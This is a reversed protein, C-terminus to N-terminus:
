KYGLAFAWLVQGVMGAIFQRNGVSYTMPTARWSDNTRFRYLTKGTKADVAAFDGSVEGHFLLGGGTTLVGSYNTEQPGFMPKEWVIAGTEINLARVLRTGPDSPDPNNGFIRGKSRYIGCDEAAMVYFLKTQPNFAAPYWNTAGRVGPCTKTGTETPINGPVLHATGTKPDFGDAWTMKKVFPKALLFEGTTRDLVYFVGSRQASMLLKRPKGKWVADVLVMPETADWDHTDYPTFQYHWKFTGTRADLAVVSNTYLNTGGRESPDTDPYPNGVAWYLMGTEPDYSGTEWTAGGGTQLARGVWTESLPEGSKPITYFRWAEKGSNAHFAVIFGRMPGDGGAIGTIVLDNVVLVSASTYVRGKEDPEALPQSWMVAGTLRNLCVLYSDDSTYFLRDGLIGVGRNPGTPVPADDAKQLRGGRAKGVRQVGLGNTRPTCWINLGTAADLACVQPGGTVYMIGDVVIPEGELGVGGPVFAWQPQLQKVNQVTIQALPNYHNGDRRGNYTAWDGAKPHMVANIEAQSVPPADQGLPGANIGGLTGLYALLNARDTASGHLEPMYSRNEQTITAIEGSSLMRFKGDLTQLAVQHDTRRRAFGRLKNGSKLAIDSVAWQFDPCFAYGPCISLSKTGMMSTPNDLWHELEARTSRAAIGSLDPGSSAGRGRVMHCGSCGGAGRFFVEGAAVQEPPASQLGSINLSHLWAALRSLEAQPLNPFPPMGRQGGQIIAAIGTADLTRLHPNDILAPARDGGGANEGHCGACTANFDRVAQATEGASIGPPAPQAEQASVQFFLMVSGCCAAFAAIVLKKVLIRMSFTVGPMSLNLFPETPEAGAQDV